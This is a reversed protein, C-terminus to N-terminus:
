GLPLTLAMISRVLMDLSPEAGDFCLVVVRFALFLVPAGAAAAAAVGAGAGAGTGAGAGACIGADGGADAGADAAGAM